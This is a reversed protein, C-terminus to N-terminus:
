YNERTGFSGPLTSGYPEQPSSHDFRCDTRSVRRIHSAFGALPATPCQPNRPLCITQGLEFLAQNFIDSEKQPLIEQSLKEVKMEFNSNGIPLHLALLRAIIRKVNADVIITRKQFAFSLIAQSIYPGIGPIQQLEEERSPFKGGFNDRIFQAGKHLNRARAYYGLGEWVKLVDSEQAAALQQITPFRRLFKQYYRMGVAVQTQQLIVESVWIKYPDRTM